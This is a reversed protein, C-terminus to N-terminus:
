NSRILQLNRGIDQSLFRMWNMYNAHIMRQGNGKVEYKLHSSNVYTITVKRTDFAVHIEATYDNGHLTGEVGDAHEASLM